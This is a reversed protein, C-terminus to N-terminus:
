DEMREFVVAHSVSPVSEGQQVTVASMLAGTASVLIRRFTGSALQRLLHAFTVLTCCAGGSGGSLVEPQDKRYILLGCDVLREGLHHGDRALLDRLINHGIQGLDGTAICDFDDWKRGTDQLHATITSYAAPAMAAGMEWPSKMQMDVVQGITAETVAVTGGTGALIAAGAGTVTRQATPPKQAGYETPNRFQREATAFHSSTGVLVKDAVGSDITLAGIALAECISACASYVGLVPVPYARLGFYFGALQANLDAGILLDIDPPKLKAKNLAVEVAEDFLHQEVQEWTNLGLRDDNHRVDFEDGLPGEGENKGAVTATVLVRPPRAFRWTQAGM